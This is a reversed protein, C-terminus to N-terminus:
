IHANDLLTQSIYKATNYHLDNDHSFFSSFFLLKFMSTSEVIKKKLNNSDTPHEM